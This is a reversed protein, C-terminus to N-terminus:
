EVDGVGHIVMKYTPFQPWLLYIGKEIHAEELLQQFQSRGAQLPWHHVKRELETNLSIEM